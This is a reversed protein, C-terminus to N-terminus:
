VAPPARMGVNGIIEISNLRSIEVVLDERILSLPNFAFIDVDVSLALLHQDVFDRIQKVVGSKSIYVSEALCTSHDGHHCTHQENHSDRGSCVESQQCLVGEHHHHPVFSTSLLVATALCIIFASIKDRMATCLYCIVM